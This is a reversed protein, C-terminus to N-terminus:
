LGDELREALVEDVRMGALVSQPLQQPVLDRHEQEVHLHWPEVAEARRRQDLPAFAGPVYRDDEDGRDGLVLLLNEAPVGGPRDVVDELGEVGLDEARLHRYEDLQVLLVLLQAA